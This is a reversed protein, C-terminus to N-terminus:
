KEKMDIKLEKLTDVINDMKVLVQALQTTMLGIQKMQDSMQEFLLGINDKNQGVQFGLQLVKDHLEQSDADRTQKTTQRDSKTKSLDTWVKVLGALNTLLLVLAGILAAWLEPTM